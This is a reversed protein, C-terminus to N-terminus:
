GTPCRSGVSSSCGGWWATWRSPTTSSGSSRATPRSRSRADTPPTSSPPTGTPCASPSAAPPHLGQNDFLLIRGNDLPRPDHQRAWDGRRWWVVREEDLDIAALVDLNRMSTLIRDARLEPHSEELRDDLIRLANTHFVDLSKKTRGAMADAFGPHREFAALVSVNRRVTGDPALVTVFDESTPKDPNLRPIIRAERTLLWIDGDATLEFDHHANCRNAWLVESDRDLRFIGWGSVVVLM